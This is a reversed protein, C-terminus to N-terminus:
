AKQGFLFSIIRVRPSSLTDGPLLDRQQQATEEERWKEQRSSEPGAWTAANHLPVFSLLRLVISGNFSCFILIIINSGQGRWAM